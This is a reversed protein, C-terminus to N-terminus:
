KDFGASLFKSGDPSFDVDRIAKSHGTYTRLCKKNKAVDWIKCSGDHSASLMLHGSKPFFKVKQVGKAHGM